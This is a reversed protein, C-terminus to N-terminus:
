VTIIAMWVRCVEDNKAKKETMEGIKQIKAYLLGEEIWSRNNSIM